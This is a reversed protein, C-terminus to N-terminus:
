SLYLSYEAGTGHRRKQQAESVALDSPITVPEQILDHRVDALKSDEM